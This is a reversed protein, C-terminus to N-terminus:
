AHIPHSPPRSKSCANGSWKDGRKGSNPAPSRSRQTPAAVTPNHSGRADWLADAAKVMADAMKHTGAGVAERMSPLRHILFMSLFLDHDSLVGPPLHQKLGQMEILFHLLKFYSQWKRKGFQGLLTNKLYDFLEASHQLCRPYGFHGPLSAQAPQCSRQHIQTKAIQDRGSCVPGRHPPHPKEEDYPCLKVQATAAAAFPAILNERSM